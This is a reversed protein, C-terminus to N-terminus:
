GSTYATSIREENLQAEAVAPVSPSVEAVYKPDCGFEGTEAPLVQVYETAQMQVVIVCEPPINGAPNTEAHLGGGTWSTVQSLQDLVCARTLEAGCAKAATAWLLFSSTAQAGLLAPEGGSAEVLDLYQETARNSDAQEFPVFALRVYVNDANGNANAAVFADEYFNSDTIWKPDYDAQAAADLFNQFNPLPSGSFFVFEAGCDKLKQVYPAWVVSGSIPYTQECEPLFEWGAQPYTDLVKQTSERTAAYDGYVVAAKKVEEPFEEALLYAQGVPTLDVPNPVSNYTLPGHAVTSSVTYGPVQPLDCSVRTQEAAGDLAFGQGVLMFVQSCAEIMVNTSDLIKADYYNGVIERGNIGGQENCWDIMAEVAESMQKNLGPSGQFGADDGYGITVSEATVGQDGAAANETGDEAPGCPSELDGFGEGGDAPEQEGADASTAPGSADDGRDGGGCAAAVLGIAMLVALLRWRTRRM